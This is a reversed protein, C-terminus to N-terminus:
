DELHGFEHRLMSAVSEADPEVGLAVSVVLFVQGGPQTIPVAISRLASFARLWYGSGIESPLEAAVSIVIRGKAAAQVIGLELRDLDVSRTASAFGEAVERSLDPAADFAVQELRDCTIRWAGAARASLQSRIAALRECLDESHEMM